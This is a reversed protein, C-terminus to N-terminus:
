SNNKIEELLEEPKIVINRSNIKEKAKEYYSNLEEQREKYNERKAPVRYLSTTKPVYLFTNEASYRQWMEWDELNDLEYDMGGYKEFVSKEFMVAQIPFINIDLLRIRSFPRNHVVVRSEEEYVYEPEKSKVEIKTEFSTSYALKYGKNKQLAQVLTEVHDAFFLDDDDLFNLYKGSALEMGINGVKCRGQKEGTAKYLINLDSFEEKLMKESINKGDEIVVIELNKYTQNRLSILTERLVNPRGCTRVIISVLPEEELKTEIPEFDGQRVFEYDFYVFKPEFKSFYKKNEEKHRWNSFYSMYKLNKFYYKILNIKSGKFPGKAILVKLFHKYWAIKQRFSGYKRRLNLNNIISNYYQVPKIEGANKYCYHVVVAKPVYKIKYGHLRVNWSIDVDEGYMFIKKDFGGVQKFVERKAVFCAGSAWTTEGTLINYMKPHEYPKQRCEWMGFEESSNEISNKLELMTDEVLETDPNLFFVYESNGTEFGYNNARGFGLNKGTDLLEIKGLKTNKSREKIYDQTGDKSNNDVIYLNIDNLDFEKQEEISNICNEMWHKSNYTVIVIDFKM